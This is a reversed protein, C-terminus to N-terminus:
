TQVTPQMLYCKVGMIAYNKQNCMRSTRALMDHLILLGAVLLQPQNKDMKRRLKQDLPELLNECTAHRNEELADAVLTVSREDTSTRSRGPRPDNDMSM